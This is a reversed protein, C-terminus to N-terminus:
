DIPIGNTFQVENVHALVLVSCTFILENKLGHVSVLASCM